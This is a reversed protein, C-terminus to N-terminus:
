GTQGHLVYLVISSPLEIFWFSFAICRWSVESSVTIKQYLWQWWTLSASLLLKETMFNIETNLVQKWLPDQLMPFLSSFITNWACNAKHALASFGLVLPIPPSKWDVSCQRSWIWPPLTSQTVREGKLSGKDDVWLLNVKNVQRKLPARHLYLMAARKLIVACIYVWSQM